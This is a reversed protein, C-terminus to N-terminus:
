KLSNHPIHIVISGVGPAEENVSYETVHDLDVENETITEAKGRKVKTLELKRKSSNVPLDSGRMRSLIKQCRRCSFGGGKKYTAVIIVFLTLSIYYSMSAWKLWILVYRSLNSSVALPINVTVAFLKFFATVASAPQIWKAEDKLKRTHRAHNNETDEIKMLSKRSKWCYGIAIIDLVLEYIVSASYGLKMAAVFPMLIFMLGVIVSIAQIIVVKKILQRRYQKDIPLLKAIMMYHLVNISLLASASLQMGIQHVLYTCIIHHCGIANSLRLLTNYIQSASIMINGVMFEIVLYSTLNFNKKEDCATTFIVYTNLIFASAFLSLLIYNGTEGRWDDFSPSACIALTMNLPISTLFLAKDINPKTAKDQQNRIVLTTQGPKTAIDQQNRIVLTTQGPKTAIDQQNRIVLIAQM